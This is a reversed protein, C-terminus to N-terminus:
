FYDKFYQSDSIIHEFRPCQIQIIEDVFGIVNESRSTPLVIIAGENKLKKFFRFVSSNYLCDYFELTNMWPFCYVTKNSAYGIALSARWREWNCNRSIGYDLIGTTLKFEEVVEDMNEYRHYKNIAYKLAKKISVERRIPLNSYIPSGLYWGIKQVEAGEVAVDDFYIKEERWPIKNSLLLSISEGGGGHECVIGYIKGKEFIFINDSMYDRSKEGFPNEVNVFRKRMELKIKEM